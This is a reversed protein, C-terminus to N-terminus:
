QNLMCVILLLLMTCDQLLSVSGCDEVIYDVFVFLVEEEASSLQLALTIVDESFGHKLLPSSPYNELISKCTKRCNDLVANIGPGSQYVEAFSIFM